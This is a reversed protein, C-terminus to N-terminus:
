YEAGIFFLGEAPATPGAMRRDRAAIIKPIDDASLKGRGVEVLTGVINRVQHHLFSRASFCIEIKDNLMLCEANLITKVPSRAQCESARFSSFDHEGIFHAAAEKMAAIDLSYPIHWVRRDLVPPYDATSIVYKYHRMKCDFRAHFDDSVVECDVVSVPADILYFNLAKKVIDPLYKDGLEESRIGLQFHGPMKLAHVGADTRGCGVLEVREGSFQFIADEVLSQVSPGDKNKQFGILSGGDYELIIKYKM